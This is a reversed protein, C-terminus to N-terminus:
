NKEHDPLIKKIMTTQPIAMFDQFLNGSLYWHMGFNNINPIWVVNYKYTIESHTSVTYPPLTSTKGVEAWIQLFQEM